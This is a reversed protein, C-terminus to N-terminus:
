LLLNCLKLHLAGLVRLNSSPLAGSLLLNRYRTLAEIVLDLKSLSGKVLEPIKVGALNDFVLDEPSLDGIAVTLIELASHTGLRDM